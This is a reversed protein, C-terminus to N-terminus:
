RHQSVRGDQTQFLVAFLLGSRQEADCRLRGASWRDQSVPGSVVEVDNCAGENLNIAISITSCTKVKWQSSANFPENM